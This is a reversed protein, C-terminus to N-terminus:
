TTIQGARASLVPRDKAMIFLADGKKIAREKQPNLTIARSMDDCIHVKDDDPLNRGRLGREKEAAIEESLATELGILLVGQELLLGVVSRYSKGVFHGPLDECRYIECGDNFTLLERMISSLGHTFTCAVLLEGGMRDLSIVEDAHAQELRVESESNMIEVVTHVRPHLNEVSLVRMIAQCDAISAQLSLDSPVIVTDAEYLGAQRLLVEDTSDGVVCRIGMKELVGLEETLSDALISLRSVSVGCEDILKNCIGVVQRSMGCILITEGKREGIGPSTSSGRKERIRSRREWMEALVADQGRVYESRRKKLLNMWWPYRNGIATEPNSVALVFLTEDGTFRTEPPPNIIVGRREDRSLGSDAVDTAGPEYGIPMIGRRGLDNVVEAFTKGALEGRGARWRYVESGEDFTLMEEFLHSVGHNVACSVVLNTGLEDFCVVEAAGAREIHARNKSDVLQVCVHTGPNLASVALTVMLARSDASAVGLHHDTLVVVSRAHQVGARLLSETEIPDGCVWDVTDAFASGKLPHVDAVTLIAVEQWRGQDTNQLQEVIRPGQFSWGCVLVHDRLGTRRIRRGGLAAVEVFFSTIKATLVTLFAVSAILTSLIAAEGAVSKGPPTGLEGFVAPLSQIVAQDITVSDCAVIVSIVVLYGVSLLAVTALVPTTVFIRFVRRGLVRFVLGGM